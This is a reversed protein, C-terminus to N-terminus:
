LNIFYKLIICYKNTFTSMNMWLILDPRSIVISNILGIIYKKDPHLISHLNIETLKFTFLHMYYNYQQSVRLIYTVEFRNNIQIILSSNCDNNYEYLTIEILTESKRTIKSEDFLASIQDIISM